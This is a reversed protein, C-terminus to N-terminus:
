GNSNIIDKPLLYTILYSDFSIKSGIKRIKLNLYFIFDTNTFPVIKGGILQELKFKKM